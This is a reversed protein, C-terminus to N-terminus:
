ICSIILLTTRHVHIPSVYWLPGRGRNGACEEEVTFTTLVQNANGFTSDHTGVQKGDEDPWFKAKLVKNVLNEAEKETDDHGIGAFVLLGRGISSILEEDVTM